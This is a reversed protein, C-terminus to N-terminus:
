EDMTENSIGFLTCCSEQFRCICAIGKKRTEGAKGGEEAWKHYTQFLLWAYNMKFRLTMVESELGYDIQLQYPNKEDVDEVYQKEYPFYLIRKMLPEDVPHIRGMDNALLFCLARWPTDRENQDHGRSVIKDHGGNSLTKMVNGDLANKDM